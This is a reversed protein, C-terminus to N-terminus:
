QGHALCLTGRQAPSGAIKGAPSRGPKIRDDSLWLIGVIALTGADQAWAKSVVGGISDNLNQYFTVGKPHNGWRVGYFNVTLFNM